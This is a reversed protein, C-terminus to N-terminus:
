VSGSEAKVPGDDSSLSRASRDQLVAAPSGFQSTTDQGGPRTGRSVPARHDLITEQSVKTGDPVVVQINLLEGCAFEM